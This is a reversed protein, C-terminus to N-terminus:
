TGTEAPVVSTANRSAAVPWPAVSITLTVAPAAVLRGTCTRAMGGTTAPMVGAGPAVSTGTAACIVTVKESATARVETVGVLRTREPGEPGTSVTIVRAGLPVIAVM